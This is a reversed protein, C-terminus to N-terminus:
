KWSTAGAPTCGSRGCSKCLVQGGVAAERAQRKKQADLLVPMFPSWLHEGLGFCFVSLLVVAVTRNLGLAQRVTPTSVPGYGGPGRHPPM